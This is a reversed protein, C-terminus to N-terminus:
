EGTRIRDDGGCKGCSDSKRPRFEGLDPILAPILQPSPRHTRPLVVLRGPSRRAHPRAGISPLRILRDNSPSTPTHVWAPRRLMSPNALMFKMSSHPKLTLTPWSSAKWCHTVALSSRKFCDEGFPESYTPM